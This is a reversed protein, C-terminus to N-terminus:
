KDLSKLWTDLKLMVRNCMLKVQNLVTIKLYRGKSDRVKQNTRAM